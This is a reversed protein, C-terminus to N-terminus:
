GAFRRFALVANHGGFAFSNALALGVPANRAVNPVYDLDCEPDPTEYNITPHIVGERVAMVAGFAGVAGAAGMSHGILSKSASIPLRSAREGFVEKVAKTEAVDGLQTATAHASIYDVEEPSSGADRLARRMAQAAGRGEPHPAVVHFADSSVGYGALEALIPVDRERAHELEELVFLVSAEAPVLGDRNLDFPRSAREPDDNRQSLARLVAFSALGTSCISAEAGGAIMVEAAGRRIVEAAEGIAQGSSACATIIASSYGQIDFIRSVQASAMNALMMPLFFPNIKMGGKELLVGVERETTTLSGIGTGILVGVDETNEPTVSFRASALAEETAALAFLEFRSMRRVEKADVCAPPKFGKVEGAIRTPYQTADFQTIPGVGSVGAAMNRWTEPASLGIPTVAGVGTVVVRRRRRAREGEAM